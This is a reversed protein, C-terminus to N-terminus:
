GDLVLFEDKTRTRLYYNKTKKRFDLLERKARIKTRRRTRQPKIIKKDKTTTKDKGLIL